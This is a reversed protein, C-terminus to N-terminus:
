KTSLKFVAEFISSSTTSKILMLRFPKRLKELDLKKEKGEREDGYNSSYYTYLYSKGAYFDAGRLPIRNLVVGIM